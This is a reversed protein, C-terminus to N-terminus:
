QSMNVFKCSQKLKLNFICRCIKDNKPLIKRSAFRVPSPRNQLVKCGASKLSFFIRWLPTLAYISSERTFSALFSLCLFSLPSLSTTACFATQFNRSYIYSSLEGRPKQESSFLPEVTHPLFFTLSENSLPHEM